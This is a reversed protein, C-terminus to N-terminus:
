KILKYWRTTPPSDVGADTMIKKLEPSSARAKAKAMDSVEFLISITNSDNLNRAIGRTILGNARRVSDGEADFAKMWVGFDKVHHSIAMGDLYQVPNDNGTVFEAFTLGPPSMVGAKKMVDKTGPLAYFSKAKDVDQIKDVVFVTNTDKADRGIVYHSIGYANRLSDRNFYETEAKGFNKIKHQVVVVKFPVFVPKVEAPAPAVATTTDAKQEEKAPGNNCAFLLAMILVLPLKKM